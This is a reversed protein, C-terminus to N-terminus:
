LMTTLLGNEKIVDYEVKRFGTDYFEPHTSTGNVEYECDDSEKYIREITVNRKM